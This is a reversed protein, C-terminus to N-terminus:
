VAPMCVCAARVEAEKGEGAASIIHDKWMRREEPSILGGKYSESVQQLQMAVAATSAGGSTSAMGAFNLTPPRSKSTSLPPGMSGPAAHRHPTGSPGGASLPLSPISLQKGVVELGLGSTDVGADLRHSMSGSVSMGSFSWSLDLDGTPM